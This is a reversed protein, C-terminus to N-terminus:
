VALLLQCGSVPGVGFGQEETNALGVVLCSVLFAVAIALALVLSLGAQNPSEVVHVGWGFIFNDGTEHEQALAGGASWNRAPPQVQYLIGANLEKPL